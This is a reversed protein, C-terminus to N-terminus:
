LLEAGVDKLNNGLINPGDYFAIFFAFYKKIFMVNWFTIGNKYLLENM